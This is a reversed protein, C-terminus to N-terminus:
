HPARDSEVSAPPLRRDRSLEKKSRDSGATRVIFGVGQPPNLEGMVQRLRARVQEDDIKRSVGVRGLAPMLVLYRGPISIYTSLTPGKSGLGEKTVQVIVEDGRQLIEQIPPKVRPRLSSRSRRGRNGGRGGNRGGDKGGNRGGNKEAAGATTRKLTELRDTMPSPKERTM